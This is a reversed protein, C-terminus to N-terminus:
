KKRKKIEYLLMKDYDVTTKIKRSKLIKAISETVDKIDESLLGRFIIIEKRDM